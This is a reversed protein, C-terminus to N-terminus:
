RLGLLFLFSGGHLTSKISKLFDSSFNEFISIFRPLPLEVRKFLLVLGRPFNTFYSFFECLYWRQTVMIRDNDVIISFYLRHIEQFDYFTRELQCALAPFECQLM